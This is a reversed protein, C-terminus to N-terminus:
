TSKCRIVYIYSKSEYILTVKVNITWRHFKKLLLINAHTNMYHCSRPLTTNRNHLACHSLTLAESERIRSGPNPDNAATNFGQALKKVRCQKLEILQIFSYMITTSIRVLLMRANIAVYSQISGLSASM